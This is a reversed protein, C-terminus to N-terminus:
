LSPYYYPGIQSIILQACQARLGVCSYIILRPGAFKIAPGLETPDTYVDERGLTITHM